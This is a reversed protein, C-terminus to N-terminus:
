NNGILKSVRRIINSVFIYNIEMNSHYVLYEVVFKKECNVEYVSAPQFDASKDVLLVCDSSSCSNLVFLKM